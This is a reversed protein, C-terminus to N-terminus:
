RDRGGAEVLAGASRFFRRGGVHHLTQLGAPRVEEGLSAPEADAAVVRGLFVTHDGATVAQEVRCELHGICEGVLPAGVARAASRTLGAAAFKDADRGSTTGCIWVAELLSAPPVNVAFEGSRRIIEHSFRRPSVAIGVMPPDGSVPMTWALTIIGVREGDRCSVLVV